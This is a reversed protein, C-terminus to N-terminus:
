VSSWLQKMTIDIQDRLLDKSENQIVRDFESDHISLQEQESVHSSAGGRLGSGSRVVRVLKADRQRLAAFESRFRVDPVVVGRYSAHAGSVIGVECDYRVNESLIRKSIRIMLDTWTDHYCDRAWETGLKQLAYRPTLYCLELTSPAIWKPHGCCRCSEDEGTGWSHAPRPYRKDTENRRPSPGWLQDFTFAYVDRAIRKLPDALAVKAFGHEEVLMDAITDKGAGAVGSVGLLM